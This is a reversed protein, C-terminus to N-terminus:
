QRLDLSEPADERQAHPACCSRLHLLGCSGGGIGGGGNPGVRKGGGVVRRVAKTKVKASSLIAVLSALCGGVRLHVGEGGAEESGGEERSSAPADGPQHQDGRGSSDISPM